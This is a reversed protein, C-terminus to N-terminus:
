LISPRDAQNLQLCQVVANSTIRTVGAEVMLAYAEDLKERYLRHDSPFTSGFPLQGTLMVFWLVGLSFTDSKPPIFPAHVAQQPSKYGVTGRGSKMWESEFEVGPPCSASLGFDLLTAGSYTASQNANNFSSIDKSLVVNQLKIDLHAVQLEHMHTVASLVEEILQHAQRETLRGSSRMLDYLSPGQLKEMAIYFFGDVATMGIYRVINPHGRLRCGIEWESRAYRDDNSKKLVFEQFGHYWAAGLGRDNVRVHCVTGFGGSGIDDVFEIEELDIHDSLQHNTRCIVSSFVLHRRFIRREIQGLGNISDSSFRNWSSHISSLASAKCVIFPKKRPDVAQVVLSNNLNTINPDLTLNFNFTFARCLLRSNAFSYDSLTCSAPTRTFINEGPPRKCGGEPRRHQTKKPRIRQWVDVWVHLQRIQKLGVSPGAEISKLAWLFLLLRLPQFSGNPVESVLVDQGRRLHLFCYILCEGRGGRTGSCSEEVCVQVTVFPSPKVKAEM